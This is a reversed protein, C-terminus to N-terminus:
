IMLVDVTQRLADTEPGPPFVPISLFDQLDARSFDSLRDARADRIAEFIDVGRIFVPDTIRLQGDTTQLINSPKIDAGGWLGFRREGEVVLESIRRRLDVVDPDAAFDPETHASPAPAAEPDNTLAAALRLARYEDARHLREMVVVYGQRRLPLLEDVRVLYPNSPKTLSSDAFLRFAPDFPTVRAVVNDDPSALVWAWDGSGVTRWGAASLIARAEDATSGPPLGPLM